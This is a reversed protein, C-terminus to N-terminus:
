CSDRLDYKYATFSKNYKEKKKNNISQLVKGLDRGSRINQITRQHWDDFEKQNRIEKVENIHHIFEEPM